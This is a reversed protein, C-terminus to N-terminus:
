QKVNDINKAAVVVYLGLKFQVNESDVRFFPIKQHYSSIPEATSCIFGSIKYIKYQKGLLSSVHNWNSQKWHRFGDDSRDYLGFRSPLTMILHSGETMITKINKIIIAENAYNELLNLIVVTDFCGLLSLYKEEFDKAYPDIRLIDKIQPNTKFKAKLIQAYKRDWESLIVSNNYKKVLLDSIDGGRSGIELINGTIYPQMQDFVWKNHLAQVSQQNSINVTM